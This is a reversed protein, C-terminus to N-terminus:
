LSQCLFPKCQDGADWIRAPSITRPIYGGDQMQDLFNNVVDEALEAHGVRDAAQSFFCADWDYMQLYHGIRSREPLDSKDDAGATIGFTPTVYPRPLLGSPRHLCKEGM